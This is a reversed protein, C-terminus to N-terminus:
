KNLKEAINNRRREELIKAYEQKKVSDIELEGCEIRTSTRFGGGIIFGKEEEEVYGTYVVFNPKQYYVYQEIGLRRKAKPTPIISFIVTILLIGFFAVGLMYALIIAILNGTEMKKM